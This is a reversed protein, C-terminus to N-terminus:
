GGGGFLTIFSGIVVPIMILLLVGILIKILLSTKAKIHPTAHIARKYKDSFVMKGKEGWLLYLLFGYIITGLPFGFLGPVALITGGIRGLLNLKRMGMGFLLSMIGAVLYVGLMAYLIFNIFSVYADAASPDMDSPAEVANGTILTVLLGLALILGLVGQFVFLTGFSFIEQEHPLYQKRLNEAEQNGGGKKRGGGAGKKTQKPSAYPNNIIADMGTSDATEEEAEERAIDIDRFGPDEAFNGLGQGQPSTPPAAFIDAQRQLGGIGFKQLEQNSTQTSANPQAPRKGM